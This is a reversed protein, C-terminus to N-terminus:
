YDGFRLSTAMYMGKKGSLTRNHTAFGLDVSMFGLPIGGGFSVQPKGSENFLGARLPFSSVYMEGGVSMAFDGGEVGMNTAITYRDRRVEGRGTFPARYAFSVMFIRPLKQKYLESPVLTKKKIENSDQNLRWREVEAEWWVRSYLDQVGVGIELRDFQTLVGFDLGFGHGSPGYTGWEPHSSRVIAEFEVDPPADTSFVPDLTRIAFRTEADAYAWGMIYKATFGFYSPNDEGFLDFPVKRGHSANVSAMVAGYGESVVAYEEDAEFPEAESLAGIFNDSM